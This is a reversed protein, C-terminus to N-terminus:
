RKTRRRPGAATPAPTAKTRTKRKPKPPPDAAIEYIQGSMSLSEISALKYDRLEVELTVGQHDTAPKRKPLFPAVQEVTLEAGGADEYRLAMRRQVKTELYLKGKHEVFATGRIRRGWSRPGSRFMPPGCFREASGQPATMERLQQRRVTSGYDWAGIVGNIRCIKKARPYPNANGADDKKRLRANTRATFSVIQVGRTERLLEELQPRTLVVPV